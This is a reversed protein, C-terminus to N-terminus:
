GFDGLMIDVPDSTRAACAVFPNREREDRVVLPRQQLLDLPQQSQRQGHPLEVAVSRALLPRLRSLLALPRRLRNFRAAVVATMPVAALSLATVTAVALAAMVVPVARLPLLLTAAILASPGQWLGAPWALQVTELAVRHQGQRINTPRM